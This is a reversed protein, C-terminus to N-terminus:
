VLDALLEVRAPDAVRDRFRADATVVTCGLRDALVLYICDKLPHGLRMALDAAARM